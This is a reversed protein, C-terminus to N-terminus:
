LRCLGSLPKTRPRIKLKWCKFHMNMSYINDVKSLCNKMNLYLSLVYKFHEICSYKSQASKKDISFYYLNEM